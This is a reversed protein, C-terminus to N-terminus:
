VYRVVCALGSESEVALCSSRIGGMGSIETVTRKKKKGCRSVQVSVNFAISTKWNGKKPRVFFVVTGVVVCLQSICLVGSTKSTNVFLPICKGM